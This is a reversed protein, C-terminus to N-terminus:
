KSRWDDRARHRAAAAAFEQRALRLRSYVTNVPIVLACSIDAASMQELEALVFVERKRDDLEDLLAHVLHAAEVKTAVDDPPPERDQLSPEWAPDLYLGRPERRLRARRHARVVNIAVSFLWTKISARGAFDPLRRHVILFVEQTVDDLAEATVGLRRATRWVFPFHQRYVDAFAPAPMASDGAQTEALDPVRATTLPAAMM